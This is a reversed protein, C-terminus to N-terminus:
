LGLSQLNLTKLYAPIVVALGILPLVIFFISIASRWFMYRRMKEVALLTADIKGELEEIKKKIEEDM